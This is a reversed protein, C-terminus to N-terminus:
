VTIEQCMALLEGLVHRVAPWWSFLRKGATGGFRGGWWSALLFTGLFSRRVGKVSVKVPFKVPAKVPRTLSVQHM